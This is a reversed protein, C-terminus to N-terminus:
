RRSACADGYVCSFGGRGSPGNPATRTRCADVLLARSTGSWGRAGAAGACALGIPGPRGDEGRCVATADGGQGGARGGAGGVALCWGGVGGHASAYGGCGSGSGSGGIAIALAGPGAHVVARGANAAGKGSGQGGIAVVLGRTMWDGIVADGGDSESEAGTRIRYPVSVGDLEFTGTFVRDPLEGGLHGRIRDAFAEVARTAREQIVLAQALNAPRQLALRVGDDAPDSCRLDLDAVLADVDKEISSEGSWGPVVRFAASARVFGRSAAVAEVRPPTFVRNTGGPLVPEQDQLSLFVHDGVQLGLASVDIRILRREAEHDQEGFAEVYRYLLEDELRVSAKEGNLTVALRYGRESVARLVHLEARLETVGVDGSVVALDCAANLEACSRTREFARSELLEGDTGVALVRPGFVAQEPVDISDLDVRLDARYEQPTEIVTEIEYKPEVLRGDLWFHIRVSSVDISQGVLTYIAAGASPLLADDSAVSLWQAPLRATTAALLLTCVATTRASIMLTSGAGPWSAATTRGTGVARDVRIVSM